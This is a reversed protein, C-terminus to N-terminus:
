SDGLDVDLDKLEQVAADLAELDLDAEDPTADEYSIKIENGAGDRLVGDFIHKELHLVRPDHKDTRIVYNDYPTETPVGTANREEQLNHLLKRYYYARQRWHHAKGKSPFAITMTDRSAFASFVAKVDNYSHLSKSLPM